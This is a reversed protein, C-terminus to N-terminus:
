NESWLHPTLSKTQQIYLNDGGNTDCNWMQACKMVIKVAYKGIIEM